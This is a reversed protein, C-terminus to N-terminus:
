FTDICFMNREAGFIFSTYDWYFGLFLCAVLGNILIIYIVPWERVKNNSLRNAITFVLPGINGAQILLSLYSPLRWGEPLYNVMIPLETWIASFDLWASMNFFVFLIYIFLSIESLSKRTIVAM